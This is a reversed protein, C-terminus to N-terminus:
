RDCLERGLRNFRAWNDPSRLPHIPQGNRYFDPRDEVLGARSKKPRSQKYLRAKLRCDLCGAVYAVHSTCHWGPM